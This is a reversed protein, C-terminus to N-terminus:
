ELTGNRQSEKKSKVIRMSWYTIGGIILIWIVVNPGHGLVRMGRFCWEFFAAISEFVDTWTVMLSILLTNM